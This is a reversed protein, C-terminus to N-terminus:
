GSPGWDVGRGAGHGLALAAQPHKARDAHLRADGVDTSITRVATM